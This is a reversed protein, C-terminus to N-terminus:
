IIGDERGEVIVSIGPEMAKCYRSGERGEHPYMEVIERDKWDDPLNDILNPTTDSYSWCEGHETGIHLFTSTGMLTLINRVTM